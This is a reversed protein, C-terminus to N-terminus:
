GAKGATLRLLAEGLAAVPEPRAFLAERRARIAAALEARLDPQSAVEIATRAAAPLDAAVLGGLDLAELMAATQRGRMFRGRTTVVPTGAALADLSTNGGSWHVTDVM